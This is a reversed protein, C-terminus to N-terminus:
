GYDCTLYFFLYGLTSEVSYWEGDKWGDVMEHYKITSTIFHQMSRLGVIMYTNRLETLAARTDNFNQFNITRFNKVSLFSILNPLNKLKPQYIANELDVDTFDTNRLIAQHLKASILYADELNADQLNAGSLDANKLNASRLNAGTLNTNTLNAGELDTFSFDAGRLDTNELNAKKLNAGKLLSDELIANELNANELNSNSLNSWRFFTLILHAHSLNVNKLNKQSVDAGSLDVNNLITNEINIHNLIAGCFNIPSQPSSSLISRFKANDVTQNKYQSTCNSEQAM